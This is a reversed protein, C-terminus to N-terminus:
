CCKAIANGLTETAARMAVGTNYLAYDPAERVVMSLSTPVKEEVFVSALEVPSPSTEGEDSTNSAERVAQKKIDKFTARQGADLHPEVM